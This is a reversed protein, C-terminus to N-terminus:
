RFRHKWSLWNILAFVKSTVLSWMSSLLANGADDKITLECRQFHNLNTEEAEDLQKVEFGDLNDITLILKDRQHSLRGLEKIKKLTQELNPVLKEGALQSKIEKKSAETATPDNPNPQKVEEAKKSDANVPNGVVFKPSKDAAIANVNNQGNEKVNEKVQNGMVLFNLYSFWWVVNGASAREQKKITVRAQPLHRRVLSQWFFYSGLSRPTSIKKSCVALDPRPGSSVDM